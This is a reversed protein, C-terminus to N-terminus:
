SCAFTIAERRTMTRGRRLLEATQDPGLRDIVEDLGELQESFAELLDMHSLEQLSSIAGVLTVTRADDGDDIAIEACDRLHLIIGSVDDAQDFLAIGAELHPRAEKIEGLRLLCRGLMRHSWALMFVDDLHEYLELAQQYDARADADRGDGFAATACGWLAKAIGPQEDLDRYLRLAERAYALATETNGDFGYPFSANYLANAVDSASGHDRLLGLAEEYLARADPMDGGWWALGGAAELTRARMLPDADDMTLVRRAFYRGEELDGRMHWYRWMAVVLRSARGVQDTDICWGLAARLNSLEEDLRTLWGAREAQVLRPAAQEALALYWDGHATRTRDAEAREALVGQAYERITELLRYRSAAGGPVASVLSKWVLAGLLEQIRGPELDDRACVAEAADLSFEGTFVGLRALVIQEPEPLQEWSSDVAAQLTAWRRDGGPPQRGILLDFRQDLRAAVDAPALHAFQVAALEIALPLGDLRRCIETVDRAHAVLDLDARVGAAREVLLQVAASEAAPRDPGPLDLTPVQHITEGVIGFAQRSTALVHLGPCDALLREVLPTLTPLLHECNDLVLLSERTSLHTVVEQLRPGSDREAPALGLTRALTAIVLGGDQIAALEVFVAGDAFHPVLRGGAEIALRTKGIGAVGVLTLLRTRTLEQEIDALPGERGILSTLPAPFGRQAAQVKLAALELRSNLDLKTLLSSVHSEVTRISIFLSEAIEANTLRDGLLALVERERRTVGARELQDM